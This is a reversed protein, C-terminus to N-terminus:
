LYLLKLFKKNKGIYKCSTHLYGNFVFTDRNKKQICIEVVKSSDGVCENDIIKYIKSRDPNLYYANKIIMNKYSRM